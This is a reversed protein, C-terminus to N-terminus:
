IVNERSEKGGLLYIFVVLMNREKKENRSRAMYVVIMWGSTELFFRKREKEEGEVWEVMLNYIFFFERERSHRSKAVKLSFKRKRQRTTSM